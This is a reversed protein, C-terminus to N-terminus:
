NILPQTKREEGSKMIREALEIGSTIDDKFHLFEYKIKIFKRVLLPDLKNLVDKSGNKIMTTNREIEKKLKRLKKIKGAVKRIKGLANKKLGSFVQEFELKKGKRLYSIESNTTELTRILEDIQEKSEDAVVDANLLNNIFFCLVSSDLCNPMGEEIWEHLILRLLQKVDESIERNLTQQYLGFIKDELIAFFKINEVSYLQAERKREEINGISLLNNITFKIKNDIKKISRKLGKRVNKQYTEHDEIKREIKQFDKNFTRLISYKQLLSSITRDERMLSYFYQDKKSLSFARKSTLFSIYKKRASKDKIMKQLWVEATTYNEFLMEFHEVAEKIKNIKLYSYGHVIQVELGLPDLLFNSKINKIVEIAEEYRDLKILSWMQGIIAERTIASSLPIRIFLDLAESFIKREFLIQGLLLYIKASVSDEKLISLSLLRKLYKEAKNLNRKMVEIQALAISAYPYFKDDEPVQKLIKSSEDIKNLQFLCMGEFYRAAGNNNLMGTLLFCEEYQEMKYSADLLAILDPVSNSYIHPAITPYNRSSYLLKNDSLRLLLIARNKLTSNLLGSSLLSSVLYDGTLFSYLANQYQYREMSFLETPIHFIDRKKQSRSEEESYSDNPQSQINMAM